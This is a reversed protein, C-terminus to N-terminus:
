TGPESEYDKEKTNYLEDEMAQFNAVWSKQTNEPNVSPYGATFSWDLNVNDWFCKYDISFSREDTPESTEPNLATGCYASEYYTVDTPRHDFTAQYDDWEAIMGNNGVSDVGRYSPDACYDGVWYQKDSAINYDESGWHVQVMDMPDQGWANPYDDTVDFEWATEIRPLNDHTHYGIIYTVRLDLFKRNLYETSPGDANETEVEVVKKPVEFREDKWKFDVGNKVLYRRWTDIDWDHKQRLFMSREYVYKNDSRDAAALAQGSLLSAGALSAGTTKLFTRRNSRDANNPETM